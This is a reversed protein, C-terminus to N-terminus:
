SKVHVIEIDPLGYPVIGADRAMRGFAETEILYRYPAEPFVLGARHISGHVLLMTGGVATLPVKSAFRLDHMHLRRWYDVPPQFLGATVYKFFESRRPSGTELYTNLDFSPGGRDLVCDPTVIKERAALLKRLVDPEFDCVDIDIWLVWEDDDRLEESIMRNRVAAIASRRNLQHQPKWRDARDLRLGSNHSLIKFDGFDSAKQRQMDELLARSCDQSDGECYVLRLRDKPWDLADILVMHRDIFSAADKVPVFIVVQPLQDLNLPEIPSLLLAKDLQAIVAKQIPKMRRGLRSKVARAHGKLQQWRTETPELYWSGSWNHQSLKLMAHDGHPADTAVRGWKDLPAFLHCSNVEIELDQNPWALVAATLLVPGTSILVNKGMSYRSRKIMRVVHMWFPHGAPSAMTGNFILRDFGFVLASEAHIKPEECLVICDKEILPELPALCDTDMDAYVGGFRHLLVYRALDARQVNTPFSLYLELLDPYDKAFFEELEQDMWLRYKWDPNISKWSQPTGDGRDYEPSHWIQHIILPIM